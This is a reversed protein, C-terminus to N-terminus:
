MPRRRAAAMTTRNKRRYAVLLPIGGALALALGAPAPASQVPPGQVIYDQHELSTLAILNPELPGDGTLADLWAQAQNLTTSNAAVFFNGQRIDFEYLDRTENIIEWVAIQFAAAKMNSTGILDFSNAWLERLYNARTAGMANGPTPAQDLEAVDFTVTEKKKIAQNIDICFTQLNGTLEGSADTFNYVGAWGSETNGNATITVVQGPNVDSFTAVVYGARAPVAAFGVALCAIIARVVGRSSISTWKFKNHPDPPIM